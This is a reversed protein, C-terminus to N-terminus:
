PKVMERYQAFLEFSRLLSTASEEFSLFDAPSIEVNSSHLVVNRLGKLKVYVDILQKPVRAAVLDRVTLSLARTPDIGAARAATVEVVDWLTLMELVTNISVGGFRSLYKTTRPAYADPLVDSRHLLTKHPRTYAEGSGKAESALSAGDASKPSAGGDPPKTDGSGRGEVAGDDDGGGSGGSEHGRKLEAGPAEITAEAVKAEIEVERLKQEFEAKLTLM